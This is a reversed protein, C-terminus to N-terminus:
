YKWTKKGIIETGKKKYDSFWLWNYVYGLDALVWIKFREEIPKNKMKVTDESRGSFALITEDIAVHTTLIWNQQYNTRIISAVPEM